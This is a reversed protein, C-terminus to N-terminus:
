GRVGERAREQRRRLHLEEVLDRRSKAAAAQIRRLMEEADAAHEGVPVFVVESGKGARVALPQGARLGLKRRLAAPIVIQGRSSVRVVSSQRPM